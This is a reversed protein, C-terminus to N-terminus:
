CDDLISASVDLADISFFWGDHMYDIDAVAGSAPAGMTKAREWVQGLTCKPKPLPRGKCEDWEVIRATVGKKNVEVYVWCPRDEEVGIPLTRARHSPSLFNYTAEFNALHLNTKGSPGVGPVDFEVLYADPYIKKALARARPVYAAADFAKTNFDPAMHINKDKHRNGTEIFTVGGVRRISDDTGADPKAPPPAPSKTIPPKAVPKAPTPPSAHETPTTPSPPGVPGVGVPEVATAVPAPTAERTVEDSGADDALSAVGEAERTKAAGTGLVIASVSGAALALLALALPWRSPRQTMTGAGTDAAVSHLGATPDQSAM